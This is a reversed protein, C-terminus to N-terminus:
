VACFARGFLIFVRDMFLELLQQRNKQGCEKLKFTIVRRSGFRRALRFSKGPMDPAQLSMSFPLRDASPSSEDPGACPSFPNGPPDVPGNCGSKFPFCRTPPVYSGLGTSVRDDSRSACPKVTISYSIKGGFPWDPSDNGVGRMDDDRISEEERDVEDLLRARRGDAPLALMSEHGISRFSAEAAKRALIATMLEDVRPVTHVASGTLTNFDDM